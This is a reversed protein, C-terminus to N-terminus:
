AILIPVTIIQPVIRTIDAIGETCIGPSLDWTILLSRFWQRVKGCMMSAPCCATNLWCLTVIMVRVDYQILVASVFNDQTNGGSMEDRRACILGAM